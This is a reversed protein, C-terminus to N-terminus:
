NRVAVKEEDLHKEFKVMFDRALEALKQVCEESPDKRYQLKLSFLHMNFALNSSKIVKRGTVLDQWVPNSLPPLM